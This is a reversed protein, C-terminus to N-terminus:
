STMTTALWRIGGAASQRLTSMTPLRPALRLVAADLVCYAGAIVSPPNGQHLGTMPAVPTWRWNGFSTGCIELISTILFAAAYVPAQRSRLTFYVFLPWLAAGTMDIRGTVIPLVTLGALMWGTAVVLAAGVLLRRREIMLPTRAATLAFLYVLGHGAPVYLPVNDFRYRYLGVVLSFYLEGCTAIAVALWVQRRQLPPALRTAVVLVGFTLVGLLDQELLNAVHADAWLGVPVYGLLFLLYGYQRGFTALRPSIV